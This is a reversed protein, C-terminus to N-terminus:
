HRFCRLHPTRHQPGAYRQCDRDIPRCDGVARPVTMRRCDSSLPKPSSPRASVVIPQSPRNRSTTPFEHRRRRITVRPAGGGAAQTSRRGTRIVSPYRHAFLIRRPLRRGPLRLVHEAKGIMRSTKAAPGVHPSVDVPWIDSSCLEGVDLEGVIDASREPFTLPMDGQQRSAHEARARGVAAGPLVLFRLTIGVRPKLAADGFDCESRVEL